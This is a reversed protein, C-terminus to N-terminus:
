VLARTAARRFLTPHSSGALGARSNQCGPAGDDIARLFDSRGVFIQRAQPRGKAQRFFHSRSQGSTFYQLSAQRFAPLGPPLASAQARDGRDGGRAIAAVGRGVAEIVVLPRLGRADSVARSKALHARSSSDKGWRSWRKRFEWLPTVESRHPMRILCEGRQSATLSPTIQDMQRSYPNNRTFMVGFDNPNRGDDFLKRRTPLTVPPTSVPNVSSLPFWEYDLGLM